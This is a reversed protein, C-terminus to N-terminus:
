QLVQLSGTFIDDTHLRKTMQITQITTGHLPPTTM